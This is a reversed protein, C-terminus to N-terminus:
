PIYRHHHFHLRQDCGESATYKLFVIRGINQWDWRSKSNNAVSIEFTIKGNLEIHEAIEDRFDAEDSKIEKLPVWLKMWKPTNSKEGKKLGLQSISYVQRIGAEIDGKAFAKRVALGVRILGLLAPSAPPFTGPENLMEVDTYHEAYTGVFNDTVFFNGTKVKEENNLTPFIKGAMGFGRFSGRKTNTFTTSARAIVIAESGKSFYGTYPNPMTIKWKGKLCIGLPHVLKSFKPLYDDKKQVTRKASKALLNVAGSFFNSVTIESQPLERYPGEKVVKWVEDPTSGTYGM